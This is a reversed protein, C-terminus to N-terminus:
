DGIFRLLGRDQQCRCALVRDDLVLAKEQPRQARSGLQDWEGLFQKMQLYNFHTNGHWDIKSLLPGPDESAPFFAACSIKHTM